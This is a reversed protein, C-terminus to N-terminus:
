GAEDVEREGEDLFRMLNVLDRLSMTELLGEPMLSVPSPVREAINEKALEHRTGRADILVLSTDTEDAVFGSLFAGDELEVDFAAYQDSVVKSPEAIAELIERRRFRRVVTSLDPGGGRGIDGFVHCDACRARRFVAEGKEPSYREYAMVDYELYEALEDLSMQSLDSRADVEGEGEDADTAAEDAAVLAAVRARQEEELSARRDRAAAVEAEPFHALLDEWLVEVYGMMSAAGRMRFGRDFWDVARQRAPADWGDGLVRLAYMTHIEEEQPREDGLRDVLAHVAGEPALTGLLRELKRDLAPDDTPYLALLGAGWGAAVGDDAPFTEPARLLALELVRLFVGLDALALEAPDFPTLASRAADAGSGTDRHLVLALAGELVGTPTRSGLQAAVQDAAAFTLLERAAYRVWRDEDDLLPAVRGVVSADIAAPGLARLTGEVARRRVLPDADALLPALGEADARAGLLHAAAARVLPERAGAARRLDELALPPGEVELLELARVRERASASDDFLREELQSQWADGLDTRTQELAVRGWASRPMPQRVLDPSAADRPQTWVVRYLGGSTERGGTVFYLAGDPGVDLDTVNLPEGLVFDHAAGTWTAGAREPFLVRIRGRAWDGMFYAGRFVEPFADHEYFVVGVPSGRGIDVVSPLTDVADFELKASGTRWGYDGSPVAHLVRTPRFWPLGRDWEMDAEYVLLAGEASFAMDFANRLGGSVLKWELEGRDLLEDDPGPDARWVTGGPAVISNAHGRPDLIVPLLHDEQLERLPSDAPRELDPSAHNGYLLYLHGEPGRAVTHPGHEQIGGDSALLLQVHDDAEANGWSRVRYLGTGEEPGNAQVLVDEPGLVYMGHATEITESVVVSEDFVGDGDGDALTVLGAGELALLPAGEATFTLNVVSGTLEPSAVQEIEFGEPVRFRGGAFDLRETRDADLDTLVYRSIESTAADEAPTCAILLLLTALTGGVLLRRQM